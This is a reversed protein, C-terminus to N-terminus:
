AVAKKIEKVDAYIETLADSITILTLDEGQETKVANYPQTPLEPVVVIKKDSIEEKKDEKKDEEKIEEKAM